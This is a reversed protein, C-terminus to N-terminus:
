AKVVDTVQLDEVEGPHENNAADQKTLSIPILKYM